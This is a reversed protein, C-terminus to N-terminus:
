SMTNNLEICYLITLTDATDFCGNRSVPKYIIHGHKITLHIMSWNVLITISDLHTSLKLDNSVVYWDFM